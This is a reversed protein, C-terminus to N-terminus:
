YYRDTYDPVKAKALAIAKFMGRLCQHRCKICFKASITACSITIKQYVICSKTFINYQDMSIEQDKDDKLSDAIGKMKGIFSEAAKKYKQIDQNVRSADKVNSIFISAHDKINKNTITILDSNEKTDKLFKNIYEETPIRYTEFNMESSSKSDPTSSLLKNYIRQLDNQAMESTRKIASIEDKLEKSDLIRCIYFEEGKYALEDLASVAASFRSNVSDSISWAENLKVPKNFVEKIKNMLTDFAKRLIELMRNFLEVIKGKIKSISFGETVVKSEAREKMTNIFNDHEFLYMEMAASEAISNIEMLDAFESM